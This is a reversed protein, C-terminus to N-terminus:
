VAASELSNSRGVLATTWATFCLSDAPHELELHSMLAFGLLL